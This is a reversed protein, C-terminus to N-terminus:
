GKSYKGFDLKLLMDIKESVNSIIPGYVALDAEGWDDFIGEDVGYLIKIESKLDNILMECTNKCLTYADEDDNFPFGFTAIVFSSLYCAAFGDNKMIIKIVKKIISSTKAVTDDKMQVILYTINGNQPLPKPPLEGKKIKDLADDTIYKSLIDLTEKDPKEESKKSFIKHLINM